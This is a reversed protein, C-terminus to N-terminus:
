HPLPEYSLNSKPGKHWQKRSGFMSIPHGYFHWWARIATATDLKILWHSPVGKEASLRGKITIKENLTLRRM